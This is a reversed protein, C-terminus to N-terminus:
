KLCDRIFRESDFGVVQSLKPPRGVRQRVKLGYIRKKKFIQRWTNATAKSLGLRDAIEQLPVGEETMLIIRCRQAMRPDNGTQIIISELEKRELPSLNLKLRKRPM